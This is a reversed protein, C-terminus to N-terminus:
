LLHLIMVKLISQSTYILILAFTIGISVAWDCGVDLPVLLNILIDKSMLKVIHQLIKPLIPCKHLYLSCVYREISEDGIVQDGKSLGREKLSMYTWLNAASM